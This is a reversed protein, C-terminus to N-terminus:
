VPSSQAELTTIAAIVLGVPVLQWYPSRLESDNPLAFVAVEVAIMLLLAVIAIINMVVGGNSTRLVAARDELIAHLADLNKQDPNLWPDVNEPKIPIVLLNLM